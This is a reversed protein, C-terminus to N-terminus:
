KKRNEEETDGAIQSIFYGWALSFAFIIEDQFICAKRWDNVCGTSLFSESRTPGQALALFCPFYFGPRVGWSRVLEEQYWRDVWKRDKCCTWKVLMGKKLGLEGRMEESFAKEVGLAAPQERAEAWLMIQSHQESCYGTTWIAGGGEWSCWGWLPARPLHKGQPQFCSLSAAPQLM